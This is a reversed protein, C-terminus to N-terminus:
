AATNERRWLFGSQWSGFVSLNGTELVDMVAQKEASGISKYPSIEVSVAPAGGLIALRNGSMVKKGTARLSTLLDRMLDSFFFSIIRRSPLLEIKTEGPPLSCDPRSRDLGTSTM